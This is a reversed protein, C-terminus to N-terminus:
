GAPIALEVTLGRDPNRSARLSGQHAEAITRCIRLGMGLGEEKTTFFPDFMQELVDDELPPGADRVAVNIADNEGDYVTSIVLEGSVTQEAAMASVANQVLNLVVQQLQVRDALVRPLNNELEFRVPVHALGAEARILRDISQIVENVDLEEVSVDGRRILERLRKIIESAREAGEGIDALAESAEALNEHNPRELLRRSVRANSLIAALPQNLEHAFGAALEGMTAVRSVHTLQTRLAQELESRTQELERNRAEIARRADVAIRHRNYLLFLIVVLLAAVLFLINRLLRDLEQTRRLMTIERDKSEVEYRTQLEAFTRARDRDFLLDNTKKYQRYLELAGEFDDAKAAIDSAAEQTDRLVEPVNIARALQLAEDVTRKAEDLRQQKGLVIAVNTLTVAEGQRDSISRRIALARRYHDLAAGLDGRRDYVTGISNLTHALFTRDDLGELITLARNFRELAEDLRDTDLLVLGINNLTSAIYTPNELKEYLALSLAYSELAEDYREVSQHVGAINNYARAAGLTDNLERRINLAQLYHDLAEDYMGWVYYLIGMNNAADAICKRNGIEECIRRSIKYHEMAADYDALFYHAIGLNQHARARGEELDIETALELAENALEISEEPSNSKLAFALDNLAEVRREGTAELLDRRLQEIQPEPPANLADVTLPLLVLAVVLLARRIM